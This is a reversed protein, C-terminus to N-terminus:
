GLKELIVQKTHDDVGVIYLSSKDVNAQLGSAKSFRMFAANLLGVSIIDARCYM